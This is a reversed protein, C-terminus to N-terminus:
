GGYGLQAEYQNYVRYIDGGRAVLESSRESRPSVITGTTTDTFGSSASGQGSLGGTAARSAAAGAAMLAIGAAIALGAAPIATLPNLLALQLKAFAGAAIGYEVLKQGFNSLFKGFSDLVGRGLAEIINGGSAIADGIGAAISGLSDSLMRSINQNFYENFADAAEIAAMRAESVIGDINVTGINLSTGRDLAGITQTPTLPNRKFEKGNLAIIANLNTLESSIRRAAVAGGNLKGTFDDVQTNVDEALTKGLNKAKHEAIELEFAMWRADAAVNASSAALAGQAKRLELYVKETLGIPGLATAIAGVFKSINTLIRANHETIAIAIKEWNNIIYVAAVAVAATIAAIGGTMLTISSFVVPAITVVAGLVALLGTFAAVGASIYVIADRAAPSLGRFWEVVGGLADAVKNIVGEVDLAENIAKGLEQWAETIGDGMNEIANEVGGAVRPLDALGELIVDVLEQSTVGMKALEDSRNAGFAQDLLKSVQPIADKIINLDEGLPFDTNALQQLGYLARDLEARGKGVTAVANGFQLIAEQARDASIGIAQLSISGRVAEELGLGPLKAVERLDELQQKAADSSGAVAELGKELSQLRGYSKVAALGVAVIAASAVGAPVAVSQLTEGLSKLKSKSDDVFDNVSGQAEKLRDQFAKIKASIEVNINAM